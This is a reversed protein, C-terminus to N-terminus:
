FAPDKLLTYIVKNFRTRNAEVWEIAEIIALHLVKNEFKMNVNPMHVIWVEDQRRSIAYSAGKTETCMEAFEALDRLFTNCEKESALISGTSQNNEMTM